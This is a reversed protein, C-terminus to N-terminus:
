LMNQLEIVTIKHDVEYDISQVKVRLVSILLLGNYFYSM